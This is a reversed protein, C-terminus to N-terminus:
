PIVGPLACAITGLVVVCVPHAGAPPDFSLAETIAAVFCAVDAGAVEWGGFAGFELGVEGLDAPLYSM